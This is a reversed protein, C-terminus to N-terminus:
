CDLSREVVGNIKRRKSKRLMSLKRGNKWGQRITTSALRRLLHWQSPSYIKCSARTHLSPRYRSSPVTCLAKKFTSSITNTNQLELASLFLSYIYPSLLTHISTSYSSHWPWSHDWVIWSARKIVVLVRIVRRISYLIWVTNGKPSTKKLYIDDLLIYKCNSYLQCLWVREVGGVAVLLVAMVFYVCGCSEGREYWWVSLEVATKTIKMFDAASIESHILVHCSVLNVLKFLRSTVRTLAVSCYGSYLHFVVSM